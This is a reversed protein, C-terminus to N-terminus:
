RHREKRVEIVAEKKAPDELAHAVEGVNDIALYYRKGSADTILLGTDSVAYSLVSGYDGKYEGLRYRGFGLGNIRWRLVERHDKPEFSRVIIDERKKKTEIILRAKGGEHRMIVRVPVYEDLYRKIMASVFLVTLLIPTLVIVTPM